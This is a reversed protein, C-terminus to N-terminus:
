LGTNSTVKCGEAWNPQWIFNAMVLPSWAEVYDKVQNRRVALGVPEGSSQVEGKDGDQGICV